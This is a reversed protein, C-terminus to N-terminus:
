PEKELKPREAKEYTIIMRRSRGIELLQESRLKAKTNSLSIILDNFKVFGLKGMIEICGITAFLETPDDPGDHILFNDYVQWAGSELSQASHVSYTPVWAKITHTQFDALGVVSATKGDKCQVGFRLVKFQEKVIHGKNDTGEVECQYVPVLYVGLAQGKPYAWTKQKGIPVGGVRIKVTRVTNSYHLSIPRESNVIEGTAPIRGAPM